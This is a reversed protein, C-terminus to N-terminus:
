LDVHSAIAPPLVLRHARCWAQLEKASGKYSVSIGAYSGAGLSVSEEEWADDIAVPPADDELPEVTEL